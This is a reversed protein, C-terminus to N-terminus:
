QTNEIIILGAAQASVLVARTGSGGGGWREWLILAMMRHENGTVQGGGGGEWKRYQNVNPLVFCFCGM